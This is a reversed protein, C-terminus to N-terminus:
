VISQQVFIARTVGDYHLRYSVDMRDAPSQANRTVEYAFPPVEPDGSDVLWESSLAYGFLKELYDSM